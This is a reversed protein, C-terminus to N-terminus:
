GRRRASASRAPRPSSGSASRSHGPSARCVLATWSPRPDLDLAGGSITAARARTDSMRRSAPRCLDPRAPLATTYARALDHKGRSDGDSQDQGHDREDHGEDRPARRARALGAVRVLAHGRELLAHAAQRDRTSARPHAPRRCAADLAWGRGVDRRDDLGRGRRRGGATVTSSAGGSSAGDRSAGTAQPGVTGGHRGGRARDRAASRARQAVQTPITAMRTPTARKRFHAKSLPRGRAPRARPGEAEERAEDHQSTTQEQMAPAIHRVQALSERAAAQTHQIEREERSVREVAQDPRRRM